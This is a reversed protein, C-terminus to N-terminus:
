LHQVSVNNESLVQRIKKAFAVAFKGDGHICVTQATVAINKGSLSTVKNYKIMKLVQEAAKDPDDILADKMSRASLTGDDQYARDAFVESATRLGAQAGAEILRSGSLGVLILSPDFDRVAKAIAEALSMEKAATNYLAGHPKVHALKTGAAKTFGALAGLQYLVLDYVEDVSLKMERRGFGQLDPYGPHAGIAIKKKAAMSVTKRMVGPDGGHFGCAINVSSVIDMLAEDDGIQYSGFSEGMDCNLDISAM